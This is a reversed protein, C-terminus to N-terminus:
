VKTPKKKTQKKKAYIHKFPLSVSNEETNKIKKNNLQDM